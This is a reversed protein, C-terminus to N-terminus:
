ERVLTLSLSSYLCSSSTGIKAEQDLKQSLSVCWFGKFIPLVWVCFLNLLVRFKIPCYQSSHVEVSHDTCRLVTIQASLCQSRHMQVNDNTCRFVTMQGDSCQSRHMQVSHDTCKFMTMQADLCQWKHMQVNDDTCSFVTIQTYSGQRSCRLNPERLKARIVYNCM